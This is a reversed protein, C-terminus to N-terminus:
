YYVPVTLVEEHTAQSVPAREHEDAVTALDHEAVFNKDLLAVQISQAAPLYASTVPSDSHTLQAMPLYRGVVPCVSLLSQM